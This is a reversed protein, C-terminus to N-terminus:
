IALDTEYVRAFIDGRIRKFGFAEYLRIAPAYNAVLKVPVPRGAERARHLLEAELFRMMKRGIGERRRERVVNVGGLVWGGVDAETDHDRKVLSATGLMDGTDRDTFVWTEDGDHAEHDRLWDAFGPGDENDAERTMAEIWAYFARKRDPPLDRLPAAIMHEIESM